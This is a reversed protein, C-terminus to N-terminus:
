LAEIQRSFDQTTINPCLAIFTDRSLSKSINPYPESSVITEEDAEEQRGRCKM